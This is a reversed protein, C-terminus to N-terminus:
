NLRYQIMINGLVVDPNTGSLTVAVMLSSFDNVVDHEGGTVSMQDINSTPQIDDSNLPDLFAGGLATPAYSYNGGIVLRVDVYEDQTEDRDDVQAFLGTVTAGDPVHVPAFLLTFGVVGGARGITSCGSRTYSTDNPSYPKLECPPINIYRLATGEAALSQEVAVVGAHLTDFNANIDDADAVEGNTFAFPLDEIARASLPIAACLAFTGVAARRATLFRRNGLYLWAVVLAVLTLTALVISSHAPHGELLPEWISEWM